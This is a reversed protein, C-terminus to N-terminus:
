IEQEDNMQDILRYVTLKHYLPIPLPEIKQQYMLTSIASEYSKPLASFDTVLKGFSLWKLDNHLLLNDNNARLQHLVQQLKELFDEKFPHLVLLVYYNRVDD